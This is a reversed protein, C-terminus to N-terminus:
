LYFYKYTYTYRYLYMHIWPNTYVCRGGQETLQSEEFYWCRLLFLMDLAKTKLNHEIINQGLYVLMTSKFHFSVINLVILYINGLLFKFACSLSTYHNPNWLKQLIFINSNAYPFSNKKLAVGTACSLEWALPRIPVIAALRHWLWLLALDLSWKHGEGCSM